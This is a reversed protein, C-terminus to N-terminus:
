RVPRGPPRPHLIQQELDRNRQALADREASLAAIQQELFAIRQLSQALRTQLEVEKRYVERIESELGAVRQRTPLYSGFFVVAFVV